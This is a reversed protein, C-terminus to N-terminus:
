SNAGSDGLTGGKGLEAAADLKPALKSPSKTGTDPGGPVYGAGKVDSVSIGPDTTNPEIHVAGNPDAGPAVIDPMYPNAPDGPKTWKVTALDPSDSFDLKVGNPFFGLDGAQTNPALMAQADKLVLERVGTENGPDEAVQHPLAAKPTKAAFLKHLLANKSSAPPAYVTYKGKGGSM